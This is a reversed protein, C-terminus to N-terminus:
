IGPSLVSSLSYWIKFLFPHSSASWLSHYSICVQESFFVSGGSCYMECEESIMVQSASVAFLVSV